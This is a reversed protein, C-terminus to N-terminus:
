VRSGSVQPTSPLFTKSGAMREDAPTSLTGVTAVTGEPVRVLSEISGFTAILLRGRYDKPSIRDM